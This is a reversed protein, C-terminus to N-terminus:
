YTKSKMGSAGFCTNNIYYVSVAKVDLLELLTEQIPEDSKQQRSTIPVLQPLGGAETRPALSGHFVPQTKRCRDLHQQHCFAQM